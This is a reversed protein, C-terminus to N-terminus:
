QTCTVVRSSSAFLSAEGPPWPLGICPPFTDNDASGVANLSPLVGGREGRLEGMDGLDGIRRKLPPWLVEPDGNFFALSGCWSTIGWTDWLNAMSVYLCGEQGSLLHNNSDPKTQQVMQKLSIGQAEPGLKSLGFLPPPYHHCKETGHLIIRNSKISPYQWLLIVTVRQKPKDQVEVGNM